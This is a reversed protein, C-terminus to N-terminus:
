KANLVRLRNLMADLRSILGTITARQSPDRVLSFNLFDVLDPMNNLRDRAPGDVLEVKTDNLKYYFALWDSDTFLFEGTLLEFFLCGLSWIDSARNTGVAKRRDHPFTDKLLMSAMTLMEPSKICETGRNRTCLETKEHVIRAEGFDSIAVSDGQFDILINELKLDYHVIGAQTHLFRVGELIQRYLKLMKNLTTNDAISNLRMRYTKLNCEYLPVEIFFSDRTRGCSILPVCFTSESFCLSHCIAENIADYFTCRDDANSQIKLLKVATTRCKFVAGFQGSGILRLDDFDRSNFLLDGVIAYGEDSLRKSISAIKRPASVSLYECYRLLHFLIPVKGNLSPYRDIVEDNLTKKNSRFVSDLILVIADESMDLQTLPYDPDRSSDQYSRQSVVELSLKPVHDGQKADAFSRASRRESNVTTFLMEGNLFQVISSRTEPPLNGSLLKLSALSHQFFRQFYLGAILTPNRSESLTLVFSDICSHDSTLAKMNAFSSVSSTFETVTRNMPESKRLNLALGVIGRLTSCDSSNSQLTELLVVSVSPKESRELELINTVIFSGIEKSLNSRASDNILDLIGSILRLFVPILRRQSDATSMLIQRKLRLILPGVDAFIDGLYSPESKSISHAL